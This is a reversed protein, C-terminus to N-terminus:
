GDNAEGQSQLSREIQVLNALAQRAEEKFEPHSPNNRAHPIGSIDNGNGDLLPELINAVDLLQMDIAVEYPSQKDEFDRLTPDAGSLKLLAALRPHNYFACRHLPTYGDVTRSNANANHSLLEVAVDISGKWAAQDLPTELVPDTQCETSHGKELLYKAVDALNHQAAIHLLTLGDGIRVETRGVLNICKQTLPVNLKGFAIGMCQAFDLEKILLQIDNGADSSSM